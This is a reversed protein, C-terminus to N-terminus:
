QSLHMHIDSSILCQQAIPFIHTAERAPKVALKFVGQENSIPNNAAKSPMTVSALMLLAFIILLSIAQKDTKEM